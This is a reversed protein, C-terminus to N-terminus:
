PQPPPCVAVTNLCYPPGYDQSKIQVKLQNQCQSGAVGHESGTQHASDAGRRSWPASVGNQWAATPDVAQGDGVEEKSFALLSTNNSQAVEFVHIM